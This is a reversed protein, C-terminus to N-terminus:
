PLQGKIKTIIEREAQEHITRIQKPITFLDILLLVTLVTWCIVGIVLGAGLGLLRPSPLEQPHTPITTIFFVIALTVVIGGIGLALYLIGMKIKGLYFKHLGVFGLLFWLAYTLAASKRHKEFESKLIFLERESLGAKLKPIDEPM